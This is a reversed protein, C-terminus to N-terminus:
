AQVQMDTGPLATTTQLIGASWPMLQNPYDTVNIWLLTM